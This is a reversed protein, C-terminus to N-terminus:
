EVRLRTTLKLELTSSTQKDSFLLKALGSSSDMSVSKFTMEIDVVDIRAQVFSPNTSAFARSETHLKDIRERLSEVTKMFVEDIGPAALTTVNDGNM